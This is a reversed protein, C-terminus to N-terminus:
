MRVAQSVSVITKVAHRDDSPTEGGGAGCLAVVVISAAGPQGRQTSASESASQAPSM